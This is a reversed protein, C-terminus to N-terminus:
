AAFGGHAYVWCGLTIFIPVVYWTPDFSLGGRRARTTAPAQIAVAAGLEEGVQRDSGCRFGCEPCFISARTTTAGCLSCANMETTLKRRLYLRYLLLHWM